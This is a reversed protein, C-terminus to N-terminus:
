ADDDDLYLPNRGAPDVGADDDDRGDGAPSAPRTSTDIPEDEVEYLWGPPVDQARAERFITELEREVEALLDAQEAAKELFAERAGGRPYNRRQAQAYDGRLKEINRTLVAQNHLLTRYRDQWHARKALLEEETEASALTAGLGISLALALAVLSLLSRLPRSSPRNM